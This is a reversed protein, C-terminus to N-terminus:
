RLIFTNFKIKKTVLSKLLVFSPSLLDFTFPRIVATMRVIQILTEQGGIACINVEKRQVTLIGPIVDPKSWAHV